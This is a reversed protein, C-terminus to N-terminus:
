KFLYPSFSSVFSIPSSFVDTAFYQYWGCSRNCNKMEDRSKKATDTKLFDMFSGEKFNYSRKGVTRCPYFLGGDSDIIISSTSCGHDKDINNLFGKPTTITNPYKKKLEIIEKRFDKPDPYFDDTGDLHCAPMVVTRANVEFVRKVKEELNPLTQKTVVIQVCIEPGYSQFEELRDFFNLNKHGEDISIHLYDINKGYEKMPRKNLLHGNTTFFLIFPKKHAYKLIEGLDKRILPDGGEISLVIISSNAISDIVKFVDETKLDPTKEMWVNCFECKLGCKHTVKYSAYFPYICEKKIYNSFAYKMTKIYKDYPLKKM